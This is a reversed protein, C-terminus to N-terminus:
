QEAEEIRAWRAPDHVILALGERKEAILTRKWDTNDYIEADDALPLYLKRMNSIGSYYRRVIVDLPIRHGGQSVRRAVRAIADEPAPLWFYILTIRWRDLKCQEL